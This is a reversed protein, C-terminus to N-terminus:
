PAGLEADGVRASHVRSVGRFYRSLQHFKSNMWDSKEKAFVRPNICDMFINRLESETLVVGLTSAM